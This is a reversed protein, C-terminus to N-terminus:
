RQDLGLRHAIAAAEGRGAVGLKTLIRSVHVSATKDSIFLTEAIQRNTRGDAVLALVEVERATLGLSAAVSPAEPEAAAPEAPAALAIRGRQALLELEHRLPAAGLRVAMAHAARLPEAAEPKPAGSGLLAEAQRWRAYGAQWPYGLAEWAQATAAWREPDSTGAVRSWEAEIALRNAEVVPTPVVDPATVAAQVREILRDALQRAAQEEADARRARAQEALAAAVALGTRGLESVWYPEEAAAVAELGDAVAARADGLRGDWLAVEALGALVPTVDQPDLPAPIDDLVLRLDAQAGPLDGTRLRLTGRVILPRARLGPSRLDLDFVQDLLREAEDRGGLSLLANAADPLLNPGYRGLAGVQRVVEVGALFVEVADASRGAQDLVTALNAHSRGLDDVNALERAIRRGEELDTIGEELQGLIGLCTGLTTLAHGEVARAGVQRAVVVAEQGRALAEAHRGLLMLLQGHAALARALEASPPEAPIIAVAREVAAMARPTDGAVWHYRALRELLAGARRPEAVADVRDLALRAMSVAREDDGALNAAEAARFLVAGRDLPSRAAAEPVQDWLALAREYHGLAEALASAAEAAQGAQVSAVLAQGLDHAAYWHYALQGWEVATASRAESVAGRQEVRRELARAYAAHLPGRQVPLLDDYIAEQVLAHRFVYAGSAEEVALVHRGVAERLLGVLEEPEQGVVAALLEHDVRTGAVAAVELVRQAPESLTEVRALLLDRLVLPLRTGELHAALLEKAFFPNGESRALVEGVLAPPVPEGLIGTLLEALDRRGLRGLELREARGSRDLEALFPRLPHRRHLEDSRYTLVLAVGARLNRVLFGLLDRTSQDAWHLDEVVLVLPARESLRELLGLLLEFLRAQEAPGTRDPEGLAPLLRALEPWSPGVLERVAGAGLDGLLARLAEVIPAYPLAGEGVPVCGGALVRTGQAACRATLETILRTKGVGAEGGVLVVAPEGDAARRGAAELIQLEEARGVFTPSVSPLAPFPARPRDRDQALPEWGVPEAQGGRVTAPDLAFLRWREAFGKLERVGLDVFGLGSGAMLDRVTSSVVVQGPGAQAMVRAALHVGVGAIQDRDLEVEGTHLGARIEMQLPAVAAVAAVAARVASAPADFRALFGDGATNVERGGHAALVARILGHHRVLLAAWAADGLERLRGTSGVIDTFLLTQVRRSVAM